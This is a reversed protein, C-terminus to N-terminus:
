LFAEEGGWSCCHRRGRRFLRQGGDGVEGGLGDQTEDLRHSAAPTEVLRPLARVEELADLLLHRGLPVHQGHLLDAALPVVEDDCVLSDLVAAPLRAVGLGGPLEKVHSGAGDKENRESHKEKIDRSRPGGSLRGGLGAGEGLGQGIQASRVDQNSQRM